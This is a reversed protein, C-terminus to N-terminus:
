WAIKNAYGGLFGTQPIVYQAQQNTLGSQPVQLTGAMSAQTPDVVPNNLSSLPQMPMPAPATPPAQQPQMPMQVPAIPPAQQPQMPMQVPPPQQMQFPSIGQNAQSLARLQNLQQMIGATRELGAQLNPNTQFQFNSFGYDIPLM